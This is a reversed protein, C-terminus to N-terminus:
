TKKGSDFVCPTLAMTLMWRGSRLPDSLPVPLPDTLPITVDGAIFSETIDFREISFTFAAAFLDRIDDNKVNKQLRLM